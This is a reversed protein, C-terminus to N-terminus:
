ISLFYKDFSSTHTLFLAVEALHPDRQFAFIPWWALSKLGKIRIQLLDCPQEM